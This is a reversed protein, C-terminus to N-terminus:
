DSYVDYYQKTKHCCLWERNGSKTVSFRVWKGTPKKFNQLNASGLNEYREKITKADKPKSFIRDYGDRYSQSAPPTQIPDGTIDNNAAMM